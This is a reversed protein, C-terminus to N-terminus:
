NEESRRCRSPNTRTNCLLLGPSSASSGFKRWQRSSNKRLAMQLIITALSPTFNAFPLVAVRNKDPAASMKRGAAGDQPRVRYIETPLKVNKLEVPGLRVVQVDIKSRIVDYVQGSICIGGPEALPEIRSAINVADGYVDHDEHIIEGLHIGIRLQLRKESSSVKNRESIAQQIEVASAVANLASDFEVLFADGITKVELGRRKAFIPRLLDRHEQLLKMTELEDKQSLSTYGVIDTFMIAGLRRSSKEDYVM